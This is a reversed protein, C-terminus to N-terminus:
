CLDDTFYEQYGHAGFYRTSKKLTIKKAILEGDRFIKIVQKEGNVDSEYSHLPNKRLNDFESRMILKM